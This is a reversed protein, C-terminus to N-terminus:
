ESKESHREMYERLATKFIASKSKGDLYDILAQDNESKATARFLKFACFVMNKKDWAKKSESDSM